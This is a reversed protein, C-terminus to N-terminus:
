IFFSQRDALQEYAALRHQTREPEADAMTQLLIAALVAPAAYSDFVLRAGVGASLLVDVEDAFPVMPGDSVVATRLGLRRACHLVTVLEAAYRPM